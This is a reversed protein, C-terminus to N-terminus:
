LTETHIGPNIYEGYIAELECLLKSFEEAFVSTKSLGSGVNLSDRPDSEGCSQQATGTTRLQYEATEVASLNMIHGQYSRSLAFLTSYLVFAYPRLEEGAKDGIEALKERERAADLVPLGHAKKYEAVGISIDMRDKFLQILADDIRNIQARYDQLDM